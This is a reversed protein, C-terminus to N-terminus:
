KREPSKQEDKAGAGDSVKLNVAEHEPGIVAEVKDGVKLAREMKTNENLKLRVQGGGQTGLVLANPEITLVQGKVSAASPDSISGVGPKPAPDAGWVIGPAGACGLLAVLAISLRTYTTM